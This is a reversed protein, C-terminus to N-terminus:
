CTEKWSRHQCKGGYCKNGRRCNIYIKRLAWGVDNCWASATLGDTTLGYIVNEQDQAIPEFKIKGEADFSTALKLCDDDDNQLQYASERVFACNIEQKTCQAEHGPKIPPKSKNDKGLPSGPPPRPTSPTQPGKQDNKPTPSPTSPFFSGFSGPRPLLAAVGSIGNKVTNSLGNALGNLLGFAGKGLQQGLQGAAGSGPRPRIGGGRGRQEEELQFSLGYINTTPIISPSEVLVPILTLKLKM